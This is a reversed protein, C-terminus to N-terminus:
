RRRRRPPLMLTREDAQLWAFDRPGWMMPGFGWLPRRVGRDEDDPRTTEVVLTSENRISAAIETEEDPLLELISPVHVYWRRKRKHAHVEGSACWNQITRAPINPIDTAAIWVRDLSPREVMRTTM